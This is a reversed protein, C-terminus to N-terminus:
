RRRAVSKGTSLVKTLNQGEQVPYAQLGYLRLNTLLTESSSEGGFSQPDVLITSIRLGRRELERAAVAWSEDTTATVVILTTGRQFRSSQSLMTNALDLSGNARLVALTELLRNQQREGRDPQVFEGKESTGMLGVARDQKLFHQALSAAITVTYEETHPALTVEIIKGDAQKLLGAGGSPVGDSKGVQVGSSMDAIIWLDALPDLEFEKVVLRNRRATSKWHIRNYSDGPAYDRVGAANATVQYSRRRLADGGSLVGSPLPFEHIDVTLPYVVVNTTAEISRQMPFLGFPDSTRILLPGLRYRGRRKSVTRVRWAYKKRAGIGSAVRSVQHGPMDSNDRVELWLKPILSTNTITLREELPQGVQTRRTRTVRSLKTWRLNVWSWFFSIVLLLALLYALTFWLDRGSSFGMM